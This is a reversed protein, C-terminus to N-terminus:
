TLTALDVYNSLLKLLAIRCSITLSVFILNAETMLTMVSSLSPVIFSLINDFFISLYLSIPSNLGLKNMKAM